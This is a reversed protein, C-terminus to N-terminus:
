LRPISDAFLIDERKLAPLQTWWPAPNYGVAKKVYDKLMDKWYELLGDIPGTPTHIPLHAKWKNRLYKWTPYIDRRAM